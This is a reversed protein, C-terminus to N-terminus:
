YVTSGSKPLRVRVVKDTMWCNEYPALSQQSLTFMYGAREGNHNEIIVPVMALGNVIVSEGIELAQHNLMPQYAPNEFLMAFRLLPGTILRNGPSAFRFTLAIGANEFPTNNNGLARMQIGVVEGPTYVSDPQIEPYLDENAHGPNGPDVLVGLLFVAVTKCIIRHIQIM